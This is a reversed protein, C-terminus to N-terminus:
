APWRTTADTRSRATTRWISTRSAALRALAESDQAAIPEESLNGSTMVLPRGAADLLLHHLPTYALLLGVLPNGPAVERALGNGARQRVLVIPREVSALLREEAPDVFALARADDLSQVMVAFPKEDRKKRERLRRVAAPSTADCALHYGGLGKVAV